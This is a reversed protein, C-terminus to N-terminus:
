GAKQKAKEAEKKEKEKQKFEEKKKEWASEAKEIEEMTDNINKVVKARPKCYKERNVTLVKEYRTKVVEESVQHPPLMNASFIPSPMGDILLKTYASYKKLNMLDTEEIDGAFVEKLISADNYGVQFSVLSGVNGFVAGRVEDTMQDIYQNAMVLNLKYKRAESLITAFSDTAFNQFEDVYLYFDKRESEKIDARSMADLQFKTVMMAGLLASADEGIKGKSLNVIIIKQNDMAWRLDFSNKNQGLVNRLIPSSLFQGVKNLIPSVAEVKQNPAMRDFESSWFKRVVPDTIKQVVRNRYVESTLMLPVSLLTTNPYELLSMITNRLIHELRPGWSDGFIRKFIGVMGSAILSRHEPKVGDFMNFAIPWETDSPDFVIVNNTRNKPILGLIGEALDGHPDIVAVGRGKKIDDVIMNELLTSKGMGTKGIIYMHRRRDSPGIGFAINSGRFNTKGIPTLDSKEDKSDFLPLNAPPEFNRAQVWNICPTKVYNTPLHVLGALEKTNLIFYNNLKREKANNIYNDEKGFYNVKFSNLGSGSFIGLTSYIEKISSKAETEDEGASIINIDCAFGSLFLKNKIQMPINEKDEEITTTEAHKADKHEKEDDEHKGYSSPNVVITIFKLLLSFPLFGYKLYKYKKSLLLKKIFDHKKSTLIKITEEFDKKWVNDEIPSFNIQITNLSFNGTRSLSSTISSYPDIMSKSGIEQIESFDKIPYYNHKTFGLNGIHIKDAPVKKLYDEVEQIEIDNFHAYIQNKVFNKYKEPTVIFFRIKNGIKSIEFSFTPSSSFHKFFVKKPLKDTAKHLVILIHEFVGAGKENNKDVLIELVSKKM